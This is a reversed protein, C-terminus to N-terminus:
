LKFHIPLDVWMKVPQGGQTAAAFRAGRAAQLASQDFGFGAAAGKLEAEQVRGREDVLVRVVVTAEKRMRQAIAPYTPSPRALLRPPTSGSPAAQSTAVDTPLAPAPEAPAPPPASATTVAPQAAPAATTPAPAAQTPVPRIPQSALTAAPVPRTPPPAPADAAQQAQQARQKAADMEKRMSALQEDYRAQMDKSQKDLLEKYQQEIRAAEAKQAEAQQQLAARDAAPAISPAAAPNLTAQASTGRGRLYFFVGAALGILVLAAVAGLVAKNPGSKARARAQTDSLVGTSTSERLDANVSGFTPAKVPPPAAAAAAAAGAGAGAAAVGAMPPLQIEMTKEVEIERSEKEIEDRFLNHMFFALNFTTPNYQGEFMMRSLAKHWSIVDGLRKDATTLSQKLLRKLDEPLPTGESSLEAHDIAAALDGDAPVPGGTLLEFLIAGLSYVDDSKGAAAGGRAEPSLYRALPRTAVAGRVVQRLGPAAEFGLLRTEGENSIMVLQPLVCGHLVRDDDLRTEYGVALALAIREAILLAHDSPIPHNRRRAQEQLAALDKGSIYDYAVFPVGRVEGLDVGNGINPSVLAQHVGKRKALSASLAAADIGTGNFVRLLVVQEMGHGGVRGARFTEGLADEALKKLLLYKGFQERINM